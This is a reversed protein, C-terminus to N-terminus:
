GLGMYATGTPTTNGLIPSELTRKLPNGPSKSRRNQPVAENNKGAEHSKPFESEQDPGVGLKVGTNDALG